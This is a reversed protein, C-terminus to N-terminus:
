FLNAIVYNHTTDSVTLNRSIWYIMPIIICFEQLDGPHSQLYNNCQRWLSWLQTEFWWGWPQKSLRKDLRLDFFVDFSRTVPRQAPFEGPGTFQGCLPGTVRFINGNSSTMIDFALYILTRTAIRLRHCARWRGRLAVLVRVWKVSPTTLSTYVFSFNFFHSENLAM